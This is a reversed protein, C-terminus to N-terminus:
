QNVNQQYLGFIGLRTNDDIWAEEFKVCELKSDFFIHDYPINFSSLSHTRRSNKLATENRFDRIAPSWYVLNFDGLVIVPLISNNSLASLANLQKNALDNGKRSFTESIYCSLIKFTANTTQIDCELLPINESNSIAKNLIPFKSYVAKGYIDIRVVSHDFPHSPSINQKLYANWDPTVEQFSIVDPNLSDISKLISQYDEEISSLNIHLISFNPQNTQLPFVMAENSEGKLFLCLIGCFTFFAFMM